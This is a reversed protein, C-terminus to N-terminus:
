AEVRKPTEQDNGDGHGLKGYDGYGWTFVEGTKTVFATHYANASVSLVGKSSLDELVRPTLVYYDQDDDHGTVIGKGWTLISETSNVACTHKEGCM